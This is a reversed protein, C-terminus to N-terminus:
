LAGDGEEGTEDEAVAAEAEGRVNLISRLAETAYVSKGLRFALHLVRDGHEEELRWALQAPKAWLRRYTGRCRVGLAELRFSEPSLQL